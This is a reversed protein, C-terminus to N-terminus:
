ILRTIDFMSEVKAFLFCCSACSNRPATKFMRMSSSSGIPLTKAVSGRISRTVRDNDDDDDDDDEEEKGFPNFILLDDIRPASTFLRRLRYTSM